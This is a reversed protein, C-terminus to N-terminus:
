PNRRVGIRDDTDTPIKPCRYWAHEDCSNIEFLNSRIVNIFMGHKDLEEKVGLVM